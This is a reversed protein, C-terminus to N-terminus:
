STLRFLASEMMLFFSQAETSTGPKDFYPSGCVDQVIGYSDIKSRAGARMIDAKAKYSDDLWGAKVGTYIAFAIMQSLNTEVFSGPDDIIDHFLGDDRMYAICGDIVEKGYGIMKTKLDTREPPLLNIIKAIGAATWGNGGGWFLKRAYENKEDDWMHYYLKKEPNMLYKRFGQIQLVAEDYDGMLAIFPPAMFAADSWVQKASTIHHLVGDKTKPAKNKLYDLMQDAAIRYKQDGTEKFALMVAEGNSAPDTVGPDNGVIGLRGEKTQRVIADKAFLIALDKKDVAILAQSATGQEWAMRQMCIMALMAKEILPDAFLGSKNQASDEHNVIGNKCSMFGTLAPIALSSVGIFHRRKM